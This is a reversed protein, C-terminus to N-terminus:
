EVTSMILGMRSRTRRPLNHRSMLAHSFGYDGSSPESSTLFLRPTRIRALQHAHFQLIRSLPNWRLNANTNRPLRNKKFPNAKRRSVVPKSKYFDADVLYSIM